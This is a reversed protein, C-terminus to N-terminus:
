VYREYVTVGNMKIEKELDTGEIRDASFFDANGESVISIFNFFEYVRSDLLDSKTNDITNWVVCIDLDSFPHCYCTVSSGFIIIKKVFDNFCAKDVISSVLKQKLPHIYEINMVNSNQVIVNFKWGKSKRRILYEESTLYFYRRDYSRMSSNMAM